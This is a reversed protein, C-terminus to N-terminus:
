LKKYMRPSFFMVLPFIELRGLLMELSLVLKSLDSMTSFNGAPGVAGFGPGVNSICTIVSSVTTEFDFNDFSVILLGLMVFIAYASLFAMVGGISESEVKRGDLRIATVANPRLMKVVDQRVKKFMLIIRSVKIGGGTSGGCAGIFMLSFLIIKSFTPWLNFDDTCFGTTTIVSAVQFFARRLALWFSDYRNLLDLTIALTSAAIIAIYTRLEEDRFVRGVRKLLLFYFMNFNIGFLMMFIGIVYEFYASGYAGISANKIAFGGTGATAFSNLLSDFLPMGGLFLLVVEVFTMVVYIGYLLLASNRARPLVKSVTVGPVEARMVHMTNTNTQPVIAIVFVLVGMGGVWHTFSRWLAVGRPLAEVNSLISAGTTTFGSVSEFLADIYRPITGDLVFPVAGLASIVIWSSAVIFIGEKAYIPKDNPRVAICLLAIAAAILATILFAHWNEGSFIAVFMPMLLMIAEIGVM